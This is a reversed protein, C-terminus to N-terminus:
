ILVALNLIQIEGLVWFKIMFNFSPQFDKLCIFYGWECPQQSLINIRLYLIEQQSLAYRQTQRPIVVSLADTRANM